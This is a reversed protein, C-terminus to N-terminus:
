DRAAARRAFACNRASSGSMSLRRSTPLRPTGPSWSCRIFISVIRDNDRWHCWRRLVGTRCWWEPQHVSACYHLAPKATFTGNCRGRGRFGGTSFQWGYRRRAGSEVWDAQPFVARAADLAAVTARDDGV